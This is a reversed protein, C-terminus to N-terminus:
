VVWITHVYRRSLASGIRVILNGTRFEARGSLRHPLLIEGRRIKGAIYVVVQTSCGRAAIGVLEHSTSILIDGRVCAQEASKGVESKGVQGGVRESGTEAEVTACFLIVGLHNDNAHVM